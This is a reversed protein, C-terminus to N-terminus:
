SHLRPVLLVTNHWLQRDGKIGVTHEQREPRRVQYQSMIIIRCVVYQQAVRISVLVPARSSGPSRAQKSNHSRDAAVLMGPSRILRSHWIFSVCLTAQPQVHRHLIISLSFKSPLDGAGLANYQVADANRKCCKKHATVNATSATMHLELGVQAIRIHKTRSRCPSSQPMCALKPVSVVGQMVCVVCTVPM